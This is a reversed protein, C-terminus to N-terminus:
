RRDAAEAPADFGAAVEVDEGDARRRGHHVGEGRQGLDRADEPAAVGLGAHQEARAQLGVEAQHFGADLPAASCYKVPEFACLMASRSRASARPRRRFSYPRNSTSVPSDSAPASSAPCRRRREAQREDRRLEALMAALDLGGLAVRQGRQDRPGVEAAVQVQMRGRGVALVVDLRHRERRPGRAELVDRDGIVALRQRHGAAEVFRRRELM